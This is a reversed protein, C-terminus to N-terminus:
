LPQGREEHTVPNTPVPRTRYRLARISDPTANRFYAPMPQGMWSTDVEALQADSSERLVDQCGDWTPALMDLIHEEASELHEAADKDLAHLRRSLSLLEDRLGGLEDAISTLTDGACGASPGDNRFRDKNDDDM